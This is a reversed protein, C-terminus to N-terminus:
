EAPELLVEEAEYDEVFAGDGGVSYRGAGTEVVLAAEVPFSNNAPEVLGQRVAVVRGELQDPGDETNLRRGRVTAVLDTGARLHLTAQLVAQRFDAYTEPLDHPDAVYVEEAMPWYNGFFSGVIVPALQPQTFAIAREGSNSRAIMQPPAVLSHTRDATIMTPTPEEWARAVTALGDLALDDGPSAGTVVLLVLVGREVADRLEDAVESLHDHPLSLAVEEDAERILATIRKLVTVRAKIVEFEDSEPTARSYRSELAPGMREVNQTLSDVVQEPPVARITTPVAHDNVSVFGREELDESVSYVYRKSVGADDAIVSAKAEGHDLITLYTDIEKDSLGFERLLRSLTPDDM